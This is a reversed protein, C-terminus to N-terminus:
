KVLAQLVDSVKMDFALPGATMWYDMSVMHVHGNRVAPLAKWLPSSLLEEAKKKSEDNPYTTVFLHDAMLEPISEMSIDAYPKDGWALTKVVEPPTLGLDAYLVEGSYSGPGGYLILRKNEVRILAVTQDGIASRLKQKAGAVKDDYRKIFQEAEKSKGALEGITRLTGRWDQLWKGDDLVYTPAIKSFQSYKGDGGYYPHNLVILDPKAELLAEFNIGSPDIKTAAGLRSQLYEHKYSGATEMVPQIGLAVLHDDLYLGAIRQPNAPVEIEGMGHKFRKPATQEKDAAAPQAANAGSTADTGTRAATGSGGSGAPPNAAGSCAGLLLTCCLLLVAAMSPKTRYMFSDGDGEYQYHNDFGNYIYRRLKRPAISSGSWVIPSDPAQTPKSANAKYQKPTLGTQKKFVRIFYSVDAYGVSAAAERISMDTARLLHGAKAIRVGIVYDILSQGTEAKFQRSMYDEHYHFLRAISERTIPENYHEQVYRVIQASLSPRVTDVALRDLQHLVECVFQYLLTKVRFKELVGTGRWERLMKETQDLLAAPHLPVFGYQLQFPHHREMLLQLDQRCPLPLIAKYFLLYYEFLDETPFMDLCAGKGGHLVYFRDVAHETGDLVLRAGGRCAYLFGSAPFRYSRLEDGCTMRAHRVDLVKISANSWLLIHDQLHVNATLSGGWTSRVGM